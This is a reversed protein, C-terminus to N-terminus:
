FQASAASTLQSVNGRKEDRMVHMLCGQGACGRGSVPRQQGRPRVRAPEPLPALWSRPAHCPVLTRELSQAPCPVAGAALLMTVWLVM